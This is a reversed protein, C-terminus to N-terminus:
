LLSIASSIWVFSILYSQHRNISRCVSQNYNKDTRLPDIRDLNAGCSPMMIPFPELSALCTLASILSKNNVTTDAIVDYLQTLTKYM